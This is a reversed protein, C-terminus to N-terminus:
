ASGLTVEVTKESGGSIVKLTVKEGPKHTYAVANVDEVSGVRVGAAEIIVDKEKIGAKAAPSGADARVVLVGDTTGDSVSQANIGLSGHQPKEGKILADAVSMAYDVPIAFGLGISGAQGSGSSFSAIASNIGILAGQSDVLAGGSNGPNISADTQVALVYADSDAGEGSLHMPRDLASVIGSTVTGALGLPSGFAVVEDGVHVNQSKGIDVPVLGPKDVKIVALDAKPDRGVITAPSISGDVFYVSIKAQGSQDTAAMSIVHNNTLIYGDAEVVVGSGTGGSNGVRVEISVVSPSVKNAIEGVTSPKKSNDVDNYQPQAKTLVTQSAAKGLFYGAMGGAVGLLLAVVALTAAIRVPVDGLRIRRRRKKDLEVAGDAAPDHGDALPPAPALAADAAPDRWPDRPAEEWWTRAPLEGGQYPTAGPARQLDTASGAPRGFARQYPVPPEAQTYRRDQFPPRQAWFGGTTGPPRGFAQAVAPPPTPAPRPQPPTGPRRVFGGSTGDPRGFAQQEGPSPPAPQPAPMRPAPRDDRAFGDPVGVPRAYPAHDEAPLRSM